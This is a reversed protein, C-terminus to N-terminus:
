EQGYKSLFDKEEVSLQDYGSRKIKDLIRNLEDETSFSAQSNQKTNKSVIKDSRYEVRLKSRKGHKHGKFYQPFSMLSEFLYTIDSKSGM